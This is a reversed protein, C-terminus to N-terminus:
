LLDDRLLRGLLERQKLAARRPQRQSSSAEGWGVDREEGELPQTLVTHPPLSPSINSPTAVNNRFSCATTTGTALSSARSSGSTGHHFTSKTFSVDPPLIGGQADASVVPGGQDEAESISGVDMTVAADDNDDDDEEKILRLPWRGRGGSGCDVRGEPFWM